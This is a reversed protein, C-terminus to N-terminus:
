NLFATFGAHFARHNNGATKGLRIVFAFLELILHDFRRLFEANANDPGVALTYVIGM